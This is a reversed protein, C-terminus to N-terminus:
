DWDFTADEDAGVGLEVLDSTLNQLESEQMHLPYTDALEGCSACGSVDSERNPLTSALPPPSPKGDVMKLWVDKQWVMM